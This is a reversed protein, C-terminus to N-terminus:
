RSGFCWKLVNLILKGREAHARQFARAAAPNTTMEIM